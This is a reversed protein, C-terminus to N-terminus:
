CFCVDDPHIAIKIVDDMKNEFVSYAQEIDCLTFHHTILTTTDIKGQEILSLIEACDLRSCAWSLRM